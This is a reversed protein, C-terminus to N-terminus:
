TTRSRRGRVGGALAHRARIRPGAVAKRAAYLKLLEEAMDRMAKKVRTKAREWTTGGLRDLAPRGAGTYKQLLDLREVPVFLKDDGAYRLELFEQTTTGYADAAIQKLGVFRGIGHDVHVVHDGVKLDRFDSLFARAASQRRDSARREEEFLDTEAFVQIAADPLRFGRSLAGVAVLVAAAHAMEGRAQTDDRQRPDVFVPVAILEYDRLLEVIREARGPTAAVFLM